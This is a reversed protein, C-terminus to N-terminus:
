LGADVAVLNAARDVARDVEKCELITWHMRVHKLGQEIEDAPVKDAQLKKKLVAIEKELVEGRACSLEASNFRKCEGVWAIGLREKANPVKEFLPPKGESFEQKELATWVQPWLQECSLPKPAASLVILLSLVMAAAVMASCKM